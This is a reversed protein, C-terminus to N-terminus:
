GRMTLLQTVIDECHAVYRRVLEQLPIPDAIGIRCPTDMKEEPIRAIVHVILRNFSVCLDLLEQWPLDNYQQASLWGDEPYGSATLKPEALARAFWQQHAAAWDILHGLAEQRTWGTRKLRLTGKRELGSISQFLRRLDDAPKGLPRAATLTALAATSAPPPTDPLAAVIERYRAYDIGFERLLVAATSTEIRLIGLLLHSCDIVPHRLAKSEEDAYALARKSEQSLPLDVSWMRPVPQPVREEIRKRIQESGGTPLRDRFARDERLLGLLLHETEIYPSGFMSAEYRAFFITRRAVETYRAFM